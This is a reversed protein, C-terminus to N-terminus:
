LLKQLWPIVGGSRVLRLREGPYAGLEILNKVSHGGASRIVAGDLWVPPFHVQPTIDKTGCSWVIESVTIITEEPPFKYAVAGKHFKSTTGLQEFIEENDVRYVVGDIPYKYSARAKDWQESDTQLGKLSCISTDPVEFGLKSLSILEKQFLTKEEGDIIRYAVFSVCALKELDLADETIAIGAAANRPNSMADTDREALIENLREFKDFSIVMEGRINVEGPIDIVSPVIHRAKATIDSGMTGDGRSAAETLVGSYYRLNCAAGDLKATGVFDIEGHRNGWNLLADKDLAKDTSLMPVSHKVEKDTARIKHGVMQLCPHNPDISEIQRELGDFESDSMVSIDNYYADKARLYESVLDKMNINSM